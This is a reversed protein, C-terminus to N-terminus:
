LSLTLLPFTSVLLAVLFSILLSALSVSRGERHMQWLLASM